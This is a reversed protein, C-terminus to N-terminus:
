AALQTDEQSPPAPQNIWAAAPLQLPKPLQHKAFREPNTQWATHMAHHRIQDVQATLGFHVDAPTHLGIGSHRHEHNYAEVFDDMFARAHQLSGFREPFEPLYKLTKFAAESYPNDNSVKPRSHSKVVDLDSLLATVPKSTMSSGRDAHVVKPIGYVGFVTAMFDEALSATERTHVVCGVIFRSFIDLMVYANYYIGKAPGALKTIDWSLVEGPATAVLEPITRAPHRAQRRRETVQAHDHLLRYMTSVSCLYTGESLLTAYIQQPAQDVFRDSHLVALVHDQEAASLKNAPASRPVPHKDGTGGRAEAQAARHMTSRSVGTLAQAQRTPVKAEM